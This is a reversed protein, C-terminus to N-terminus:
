LIEIFPLKASKTNKHSEIIAFCLTRSDYKKILGVCLHDMLAFLIKNWIKKM